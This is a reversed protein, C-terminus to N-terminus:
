APLPVPLGRLDGDCEGALGVEAGAGKAIDSDTKQLFARSQRARVMRHSRDYGRVVFTARQSSNFDVEIGTVEGKMLSKKQPVPAGPTPGAAVQVLIEISDGPKFVDANLMQIGPDSMHITFMDPLELSDDVDVSILKRMYDPNIHQGNIKVYIQPIHQTAPM